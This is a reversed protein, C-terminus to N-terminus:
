VKLFDRFISEDIKGHKLWSIAARNIAREVRRQHLFAKAYQERYGARNFTESASECASMLWDCDAVALSHIDALACSEIETLWGRFCTSCLYVPFEHGILLQAVSHDAEAGSRECVECAPTYGDNYESM